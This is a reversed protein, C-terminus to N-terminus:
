QKYKKGLFCLVEYPITGWSQAVKDACLGFSPQLVYARSGLTVNDIESIDVMCAQMCITGCMPAQVGEIVVINNKSNRHFGDAYGIAIVAIRMTKPATFTNNYSITTGKQITRIQIIKTNVEMAPKCEPMAEDYGYLAIGCRVIDYGLAQGYGISSSNGLSAQVNTYTKQIIEYITDFGKQQSKVHQGDAVTTLHSFIYEIALGQKKCESVKYEIEDITFGLRSMGTDCKIAIPKKFGELLHIQEETHIVPTLDYEMCGEVEKKNSIGLLPFIAGKVGQKRVYIGESVTGTFFLRCGVEELGKGVEVAGHGYGNAKIVAGIKANSKQQISMFNNQITEIMVRQEVYNM